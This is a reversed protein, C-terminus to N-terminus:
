EAPTIKVMDSFGTMDFVEMIQPKVNIVEFSANEGIASTRKQTYLITRLGASSLYEVEGFNFILNNEGAELSEDVAKQLEPATQTDVRGKINYVCKGEENTIKEIEM